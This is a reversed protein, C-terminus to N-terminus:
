RLCVSFNRRHELRDAGGRQFVQNRMDGGLQAFGGGDFQIGSHAFGLDRGPEPFQSFKVGARISQPTKETASVVTM